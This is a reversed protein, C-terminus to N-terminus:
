QAGKHDKQGTNKHRGLVENPETPALPSKAAPKNQAPKTPRGPVPAMWPSQYKKNM